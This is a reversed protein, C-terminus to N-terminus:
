NQSSKCNKERLFFNNNRFIEVSSCLSFEYSYLRDVSSSQTRIKTALHYTKVGSTSSYFASKPCPVYGRINCLLAWLFYMCILLLPSCLFIDSQSLDTVGKFTKSALIPDAWLYRSGLSFPNLHHLREEYPMQHHDRVLRTVLYQVGKTPWYRSKPDTLQSGNWVWLACRLPIFASTPLLESFTRRVM